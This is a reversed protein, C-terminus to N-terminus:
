VDTHKCRPCHSNCLRNNIFHGLILFISAFIMIPLHIDSMHSSHSMRGMLLLFLGCSIMFPGSLRKHAKFGACISIIGFILALAMLVTEFIDLSVFYLSVFPILTIIIPFILCHVFCLAAVMSGAKDLNIKKM